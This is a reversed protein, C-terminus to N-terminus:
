SRRPAPSPERRIPAARPRCSPTSRCRGTRGRAVRGSGPRSRLSPRRSGRASRAAPRATRDTSCSVATRSRSSDAPLAVSPIAASSSSARAALHEGLRRSTSVVKSTSASVGGAPRLRSGRTTTPCHSGACRTAARRGFGALEQPEEPGLVKRTAERERSAHEGGLAVVLVRGAHEGALTPRRPRVPAEVVEGVTLRGGAQRGREVGDREVAASGASRGSM